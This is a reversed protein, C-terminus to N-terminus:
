LLIGNKPLNRVMIKALDTKGVGPEGEIITHLMDKSNDFDQLQYLLLEFIDRKINDMGIMKKLKLLPEVLKSIRYVNINYKVIPSYKGNIYDQGLKILDDINELNIDLYKNEM